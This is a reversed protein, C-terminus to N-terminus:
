ITNFLKLSYEHALISDMIMLMEDADDVVMIIPRVLVTAHKGTEEMNDM